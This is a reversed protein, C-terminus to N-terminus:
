EAAQMPVVNDANLIGKVDDATPLEEQPHQAEIRALRAKGEAICADHDGVVHKEFVELQQRFTKFAEITSARRRRAESIESMTTLADQETFNVVRALLDTMNTM